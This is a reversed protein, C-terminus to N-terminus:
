WKKIDELLEDLSIEDGSMEADYISQRFKRLTIGYEPIFDDLDRDDTFQKNWEEFSIPEAQKDDEILEPYDEIFQHVMHYIQKLALENEVPMIEKFVRIKYESISM